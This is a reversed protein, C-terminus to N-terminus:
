ADEAGDPRSTSRGHLWGSVPLAVEVEPRSACRTRTRRRPELAVFGRFGWVFMLIVVPLPAISWILELGTHPRRRGDTELASGEGPIELSIMLGMLLLCSIVSVWMIYDFLRDPDSATTSADVPLWFYPSPNLKPINNTPDSLPMFLLHTM